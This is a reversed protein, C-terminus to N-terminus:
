CNKIIDEEGKLMRAERDSYFKDFRGLLSSLLLAELKM